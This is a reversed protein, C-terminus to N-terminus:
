PDLFTLAKQHLGPYVNLAVVHRGDRTARFFPVEVFANYKNWKLSPPRGNIQEWRGDGFGSFRQFARRVDIAIDQDGGGRERWVASAAVGKAVLAVAAASAFRFPSAILPDAGGYFRVKGGADTVSLGVTSLVDDLVASFDFDTATLPNNVSYRIQETLGSM